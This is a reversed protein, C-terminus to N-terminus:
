SCDYDLCIIQQQSIPIDRNAEELVLRVGSELLLESGCFEQIWAYCSDVAYKWSVCLYRVSPKRSLLYRNFMAITTGNRLATLGGSRLTYQCRKNVQRNHNELTTGMNAILGRLGRRGNDCMDLLAYQWGPVSISTESLHHEPTAADKGSLNAGTEISGKRRVELTEFSPFCTFSIRKMDFGVVSVNLLYPFGWHMQFQDSRWSRNRPLMKHRDGWSM